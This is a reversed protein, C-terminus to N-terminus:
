NDNIDTNDILEPIEINKDIQDMDIEAEKELFYRTHKQLKFFNLIIFENHILSAIILIFYIALRLFFESIEINNHIILSNLLFALHGITITMGLHSPSFRDIVFFINLNYLFNMVLMGIYLLIYLKNEYLKWFRTFVCSNENNEDPLDIFIFLISFLIALINVFIGRFLLFSYLSVSNYTLVIKAFSDEIAYFIIILIRSLIYIFKAMPESDIKNIEIIDKIVLIILFIINIFLSLYHHRYFRSHLIISSAIYQSIINIILTFNLNVRKVSVYIKKLFIWIIIHIYKGLFEFFSIIILLKIVRRAKTNENEINKDNYILNSTKIKDKKDENIKSSKARHKIILVPIISLFDSLSSIYYNHFTSSIDETSKNLHDLIDKIIDLIFYSLFLFHNFNIKPFIFYKMTKINVLSNQLINYNKFM